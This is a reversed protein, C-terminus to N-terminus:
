MGIPKSAASFSHKKKLKKNKDNAAHSRDVGHRYMCDTERRSDTREARHPQEGHWIRNFGGSVASGMARRPRTRRRVAPIGNRPVSLVLSLMQVPIRHSTQKGGMKGLSLAHLIRRTYFYIYLFFVFTTTVTVCGVRCPGSLVLRHVGRRPMRKPQRCTSCARLGKGGPGWSTARFALRVWPQPPERRPRQQHLPVVPRPAGTCFSPQNARERM